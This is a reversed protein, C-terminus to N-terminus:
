KRRTMSYAQKPFIFILITSGVALMFVTAATITGNMVLELMYMESKAIENQHQMFKVLALVTKYAYMGPIMPLLAPIYLVTVPCYTLRGFRFALLGVVLSACFSATAIDTNLSSMLYYRLTYGIAALAAIYPFARRPPHSVAGFGVGAIAAPLACAIIDIFTM